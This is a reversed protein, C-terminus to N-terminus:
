DMEWIIGLIGVSEVSVVEFFCLCKYLVPMELGGMNSCSRAGRARASFSSFGQKEVFCPKRFPMLLDRRVICLLVGLAGAYQL